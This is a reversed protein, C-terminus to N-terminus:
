HRNAFEAQTVKAALLNDQAEATDNALSKILTIADAANPSGAAIVQALDPVLPPILRPSHGMRLQFPSFGTSANVTNMINFRVLPLAKVWNKQNRDVHYRLSQEITKNTRESCGDTEPHYM